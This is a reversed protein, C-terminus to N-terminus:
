ADVAACTSSCATVRRVVFPVMQGAALGTFSITAANDNGDPVITIDGAALMVVTKAIPDLDNNSPTIARGKRGFSNASAAGKNWEQSAM